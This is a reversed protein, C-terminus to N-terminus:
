FHVQSAPDTALVDQPSVSLTRNTAMPSTTKRVNLRYGLFKTTLPSKRIHSTAQAQFLTKGAICTTQHERVTSPLLSQHLLNQGISNSM